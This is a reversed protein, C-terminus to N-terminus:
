SQTASEEKFHTKKPYHYAVSSAKKNPAFNGRESRNKQKQTASEEKFHTKTPYNKTERM